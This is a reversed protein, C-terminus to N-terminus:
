IVDFPYGGDTYTRAAILRRVEDDNHEIRSLNARIRGRAAAAFMMTMDLERQAGSEGRREIAATARSICSVLAYLDIVVNALRVQLLQMEPIDRGHERLVREAASQLGVVSEEFLVAERALLSHARGLRERRMAERVKRIAFSRLLGFGKVPEIIATEVDSMREGPGRLGSLAIFCRLTESTADVVLGGRADRLRRGLQLAGSYASGGAMQMAENAGRWLAESAAVRCITSEISYDDVGRDMLGATMYTMSEVAFADALMKALKNKLIPFEGIARGFSRRKQVRAITLNVLARLQGFLWAALSVRAGTMVEMAIKFGKGPDSLVAADPVKVNALTVRAVGAGRLGLLDTRPTVQLGRAREVLFATLRPKQGELMRSTRALLVFVDAREGNTVWPKEGDIVWVDGEKVAHTRTAGADTGASEETLAFAGVREGRALAPLWRRKQEDNGFTAIARMAIAQHAVLSLAVSADAGAIETIVRAFALNSLGAGGYEAPALLGFAGLDRLEAFVRTPVSGERDIRAADVESELFRRLDAVRRHTATREDPGLEPYPFLMDEAVVGFFLAKLFSQERSM